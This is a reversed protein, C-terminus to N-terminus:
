ADLAMTRLDGIFRDLGSVEAGGSGFVSRSRRRHSRRGSKRSHSRHKRVAGFVSRSRRRRSRRGSKRKKVAGFISRSRRRHSRRGSKRKKRGSGFMTDITNSLDDTLQNHLLMDQLTSM